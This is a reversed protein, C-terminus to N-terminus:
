YSVRRRHPSAALSVVFNGVKNRLMDGTLNERAAEIEAQMEPVAHPDSCFVHDRVYGWVFYNKPNEDCPQTVTRCLDCSTGASNANGRSAQKSAATLM